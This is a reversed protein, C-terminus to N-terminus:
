NEILNIKVDTAGSCDITLKSEFTSKEGKNLSSTLVPFKILELGDKYLTVELSAGVPYDVDTKNTIDGQVFTYGDEYKAVLNEVEFGGLKAVEGSESNLSVKVSGPLDAQHEGSEIGNNEIEGNGNKNGDKDNFLVTCVIAVILLIIVVIAIVISWNKKM